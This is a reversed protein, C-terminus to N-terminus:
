YEHSLMMTSYEHGKEDISSIVFIKENVPKEVSALKADTYPPVEQKHTIRQLNEGDIEEYELEFVQLYDLKINGKKGLEDIMSWLILQLDLGIKEKIGMTMYKRGSFMNERGRFYM